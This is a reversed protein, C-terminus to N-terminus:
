FKMTFNLGYVVVTDDSFDFYLGPVVEWGKGMEFGYEGGLRLLASASSSDSEIEVGPAALLTLDGWVHWFFPVGIVGDRFDAGTLEIFGGIGFHRNLRYEYDLGLSPGVDGAGSTVGAFIGLENRGDRAWDETDGPSAAYSAAPLAFPALLLLSFIVVIGSATRARM